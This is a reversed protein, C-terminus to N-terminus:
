DCQTHLMTAWCAHTHRWRTHYKGAVVYWSGFVKCVTYLAKARFSHKTPLRFSRYLLLDIPWTCSVSTKVSPVGSESLVIEEIHRGDPITHAGCVWSYSSCCGCWGLNPNKTQSLIAEYAKENRQFFAFDKRICAVPICEWCHEFPWM